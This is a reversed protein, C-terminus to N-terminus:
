LFRRQRRVAFRKRVKHYSFITSSRHTHTPPLCSGPTTYMCLPLAQAVYLSLESTAYHYENGIVHDRDFYAPDVRM